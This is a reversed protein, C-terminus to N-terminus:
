LITRAISSAGVEIELRSTYTLGCILAVLMTLEIAIRRSRAQAQSKTCPRQIPSLGHKKFTTCPLLGQVM